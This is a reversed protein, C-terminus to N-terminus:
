CTSTRFEIIGGWSFAQRLNISGCFVAAKRNRQCNKIGFGDSKCLAVDHEQGNCQLKDMWEVDTGVSTSQLVIPTRIYICYINHISSFFM